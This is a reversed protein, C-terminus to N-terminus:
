SVSLYLAQSVSLGPSVTHGTLAHQDALQLRDALTLYLYVPNCVIVIIYIIYVHGVTSINHPPHPPPYERYVRAVHVVFLLLNECCCFHLCGLFLDFPISM